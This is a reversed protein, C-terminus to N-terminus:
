TPSAGTISTPTPSALTGLASHPYADCHAGMDEHVLKQLDLSRASRLARVVVDTCM